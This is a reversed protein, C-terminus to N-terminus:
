LNIIHCFPGMDSSFELGQRKGFTGSIIRILQPDLIPMPENNKDTTSSTEKTQSSSLFKSHRKKQAQYLKKLKKVTSKAKIPSGNVNTLPFGTDDWSSYLSNDLFMKEPPISADPKSEHQLPKGMAKNIENQLSSPLIHGNGDAQIIIQQELSVLKLCYLFKHYLQNGQEKSIQNHYQISKGMNKVKSILNAQPIVMVAVGGARKKEKSLKTAFQLASITESGDGWVGQTLVPLNLVTKAANYLMTEEAHKSFSIYIIIGGPYTSNDSPAANLPRSEGFKVIESLTEDSSDGVFLFASRCRQVVIVISNNPKKEQKEKSSANAVEPNDEEGDMILIGTSEIKGSEELLNQECSGESDVNKKEDSSLKKKLLDNLYKEKLTLSVFYGLISGFLFSVLSTSCTSWGIATEPRATSSDFTRNSSTM